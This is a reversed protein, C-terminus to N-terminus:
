EIAQKDPKTEEIKGDRVIWIPNNAGSWKLTNQKKDLVCLSIDM